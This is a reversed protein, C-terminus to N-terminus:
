FKATPMGTFPAVECKGSVLTTSRYAFGVGNYRPIIAETKGAMEGSTRDVSRMTSLHQTVKEDVFVIETESVKALDRVEECAGQCYIGRELDVRYRVTFPPLNKTREGLERDISRQTMSANCVLDFQKVAKAQCGGLLLGTAAMVM